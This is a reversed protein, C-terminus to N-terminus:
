SYVHVLVGRGKVEQNGCFKIQKEFDKALFPKEADESSCFSTVDKTKLLVYYISAM